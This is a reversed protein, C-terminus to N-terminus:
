EKDIRKLSFKWPTKEGKVTGNLYRNDETLALDYRTVVKLDNPNDTDYGNILLKRSAKDFTGRVFETSAKDMKEPNNTHLLTWVLQGRVRGGSGDDALDMQVSYETGAYKTGAPYVFDGAWKGGPSINSIVPQNTSAAPAAAANSNKATNENGASRTNASGEKKNATNQEGNGTRSYLFMLAIIAAAMLGIILYLWKLSDSKPASPAPAPRLVQTEMDASTHPPPTQGKDAAAQLVTGDSLCYTNDDSYLQGCNPCQKM